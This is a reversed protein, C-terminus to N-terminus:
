LRHRLQQQNAPSLLPLWSEVLMIRLRALSGYMCPMVHPLPQMYLPSLTLLSHMKTDMLAPMSSSTWLPIHMIQRHKAGLQMATPKNGPLLAFDRVCTFSCATHAALRSEAGGVLCALCRRRRVVPTPQGHGASQASGWM